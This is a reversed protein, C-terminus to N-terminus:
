GLSTSRWLLSLWLVGGWVDIKPGKQMKLNLITNEDLDNSAYFKPMLSLRCCGAAQVQRYIALDGSSGLRCGFLIVIKIMGLEKAVFPMWSCWNQPTDHYRCPICPWKHTLADPKQLCWTMAMHRFLPTTGSVRFALRRCLKIDCGCRFYQICPCKSQQM